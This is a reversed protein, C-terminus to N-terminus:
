ESIWNKRVVLKRFEVDHFLRFAYKARSLEYHTGFVHKYKVPSKKIAHIWSVLRHASSKALRYMSDSLLRYPKPIGTHYNSYSDSAGQNRYRLRFYEITMRQKPIVHWLYADPTYYLDWGVNQIDKLLGTEGDGLWIQGYSEPHFGGADLLISKRVAMNCGYISYDGKELRRPQDGLDILSLIGKSWDIVWSPPEALWKPIVKGGVAGINKDKFPEVISRLWSPPFLVDDDTFVLIDALAEKSANNRAFHVGLTPEILYRITRESKQCFEEVLARLTSSVANDVVIIEYADYDQRVLSELTTILSQERKFTPIIVSAAYEM